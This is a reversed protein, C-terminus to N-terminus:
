KKNSLKNMVRDKASEPRKSGWRFKIGTSANEEPNSVLPDVSLEVEEKEEEKLKSLETKLEDIEAQAEASFKTEKVVSETIVKPIPKQDVEENAAVPEEETEEEEKNEGAEMVEAIVGEESVTFRRGDELEYAEGEGTVPMPIAEKTEPDIVAVTAGAEFDPEASIMTVGDNLKSEALVVEAKDAEKDLPKIEELAQEVKSITEDDASLLTKIVKFRSM